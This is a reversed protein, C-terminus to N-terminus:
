KYFVATGIGLEQCTEPASLDAEILQAVTMIQSDSFKSKNM